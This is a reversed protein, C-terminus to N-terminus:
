LTVARPLSLVAAKGTCMQKIMNLSKKLFGRLQTQWQCLIFAARTWTQMHNSLAHSISSLLLLRHYIVSSFLSSMGYTNVTGDCTVGFSLPLSPHPSLLKDQSQSISWNVQFLSRPWFSKHRQVTLLAPYPCFHTFPEASSISPQRSEQLGPRFGSLTRSRLSPSFQPWIEHQWCM